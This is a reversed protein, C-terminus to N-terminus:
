PSLIGATTAPSTIQTQQAQNSFLDDHLLVFEENNGNVIVRQKKNTFKLKKIALRTKSGVTKLIIPIHRHKLMAIKKVGSLCLTQAFLTKKRPKSDSKRWSWTISM